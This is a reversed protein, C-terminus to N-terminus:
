PRVRYIAIVRADRMVIEGDDQGYAYHSSELIVIQKAGSSYPELAKRIADMDGPDSIAIASTGDLYEPERSSCTDCSCRCDSQYCSDAYDCGDDSVCCHVTVIKNDCWQRSAPATEGIVLNDDVRAGYRNM